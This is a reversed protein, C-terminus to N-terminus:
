LLNEDSHYENWRVVQNKDIEFRIFSEPNQVLNKEHAYSNNYKLFHGTFGYYRRKLGFKTTVPRSFGKCYHNHGQMLLNARINQTDRVMGGEALDIRANVKTGHKGYVVFPKKEIMLLDFFDAFHYPCGLEDAILRGIDLNFFKKARREHNGMTSYRIYKKFPKFLELIDHIQQDASRDAEFSGIKQSPFDILDGLLYIVKNKGSKKFTTKWFDIYDWNCNVSGIHLDSVPFVYLKNKKLLYEKM